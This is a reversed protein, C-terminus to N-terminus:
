PLTLFPLGMLAQAFTAVVVVVGFAAGALVIPVALQRLTRDAILGLLPLAQMLHTAFFHPVRLDGGTTSWGFFLLGSADTREGAVWHGPETVVSSSMLGAIILTFVSGLTLGLVIGWRVGGGTEPALAKRSKLGILLSAIVMSVAGVGMVGYMVIEFTTDFNFHSARGRGAQYLIYGIEIIAAGSSVLAARRMFGSARAQPTMARVILALTALHIAISLEFKLPKDWVSVGILTRPDLAHAALTPLTLAVMMLAGAWLTREADNVSASVTADEAIEHTYAVATMAIEM